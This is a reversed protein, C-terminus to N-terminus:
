VLIRRCGVFAEDYAGAELTDFRVGRGVSAHIFAGGGVYIGVHTPGSNGKFRFFVLDGLRLKRRPVPEGVDYLTEVTRPLDLRLSQFVNHVFGSCDIGGRDNGGLRYPTGIWSEAEGKLAELQIPGAHPLNADASIPPDLLTRNPTCGCFGCLAAGLLAAGLTRM